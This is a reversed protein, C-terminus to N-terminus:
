YLQRHSIFSTISTTHICIVYLIMGVCDYARPYDRKADAYQCDMLKCADYNTNKRMEVTIRASFIIRMRGSRLQTGSAKMLIVM